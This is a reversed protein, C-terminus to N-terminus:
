PLSRHKWMSGQWQLLSGFTAEDGASAATVPYWLSPPKYIISVQTKCDQLRLDPHWCSQTRTLVLSRLNCVASKEDYGWKTSLSHAPERAEVQLPVLGIWPAAAWMICEDLAGWRWIGGRQPSSQLMHIQPVCAKSEHCQHIVWRRM